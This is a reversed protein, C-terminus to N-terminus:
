TTIYFSRLKKIQLHLIDNIKISYSESYSINLNFYVFFTYYKRGGIDSLRIIKKGSLCLAVSTERGHM